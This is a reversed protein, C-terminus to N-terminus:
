KSKEKLIIVSTAAHSPPRSHVLGHSNFGQSSFASHTGSTPPRNEHSYVAGTLNAACDVVLVQGQGRSAAASNLRHRYCLIERAADQGSVVLDAHVRPNASFHRHGLSVRCVVMFPVWALSTSRYNTWYRNVVREHALAVDCPVHLWRDHISTACATLSISSNEQM